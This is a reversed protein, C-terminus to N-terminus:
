NIIMGIIANYINEANKRFGKEMDLAQQKSIALLEIKVIEGLGDSMSFSVTYDDNQNQIHETKIMASRNHISRYNLTANEVQTRISFPLSNETIRGNRIGKETLSYMENDVIIHETKVLDTVCDMFDFYSIGDECLTLDALDELIIPMPLCRLVYLVLIKIQLLDQIFGYRRKM